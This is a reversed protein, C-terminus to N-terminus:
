YGPPRGGGPGGQGGPPGYGGGAPPGGFGGGGQPGYGGGPPGGFGGGAPGYGPPPGYGPGGGQPGYGPPGAFRPPPAAGRGSIRLYIITTALGIVPMAALVPLCCAILSGLAIVNAVIGFLFIKLKQGNTARWSAQIADIPGLGQDVILFVTLLLGCEIYITPVLFVITALAQLVLGPLLFRVTSISAVVLALLLFGLVPLFRDAGGFLEGFAPQRGQAVGLFIRVIGPMLFSVVVISVLYGVGILAYSPATGLRMVNLLTPLMGVLLPIYFLLGAVIPVFVLVVWNPKFAEFAATLVEGIDWGQPGGAQIMQGGQPPGAQPPAYPNYNM